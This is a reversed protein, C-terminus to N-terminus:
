VQLRVLPQDLQIGVRLGPRALRDQVHGTGALEGTVTGDGLVRSADPVYFRARHGLPGDIKMQRTSNECSRGHLPSPSPGTSAHRKLTGSARGLRSKPRSRRRATWADTWVSGM